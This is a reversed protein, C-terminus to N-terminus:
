SRAGKERKATVSSRRAKVQEFNENTEVLRAIKGTLTQWRNVILDCYLPDFEILRARRGTREAAIMTTGSGGFPDLVISGRHSCDRLADMVLAVPKVTPHMALNADRDRGFSNCGPYNWVNSRYRGKAGLGFNNIPRGGPRAYVVILEYQSRYFSGMGANPKAWVIINKPEGLLHDIGARLEGLHRWDMCLYCVAGPDTFDFINQGYSTHFLTFESRSMEGAAMAFERVGQRGTVHGANPVNYPPDAFVIQAKDRGMLSEFDEVLRADGCKLLHQDCAWLDGRASVALDDATPFEVRDAIDTKRASEHELILNDIEVTEFGTLEIEFGLELAPDALFKLEEPLIDLDWEGMESLKNDALALARKAAESLGTLRVVPIYPLGLQCAALYRALGAWIVNNEDVIIPQTFGFTDINQSLLSIKKASHKKAARPNRKLDAIAVQEVMAHPPKGPLSEGCTEDDADDLNITKPKHGSKFLVPM